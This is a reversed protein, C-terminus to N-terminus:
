KAYNIRSQRYLEERFAPTMLGHVNYMPSFASPKGPACFRDAFDRAAARQEEETATAPDFPKDYVVGIVIKDGYKEYLAVTDNMRMPLWADFGADVFVGCRDECHGCSHLEVYKGCSHVFDNFRKMEPLYVERAVRDSFFPAMQSGWDDHICVGDVDYYKFCKEAIRIYLDTLAHTLEKVADIQDEDLLAMAAGEFDMFSILREFWCGNLFTIVTAKDQALYEKNQAASGEWDWSDIDPFVVKERWENADELLPAGPKVMSGGVQDVYVWEVGFMDKGGYQEKPIKPGGEFIFGRAINDPIVSPTFNGMECDTSEWIGQKNMYLEYAAKRISVPFDYLPISKGGFRGPLEKVVKLESEQFPIKEM